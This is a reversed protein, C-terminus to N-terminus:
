LNILAVALLAVALGAQGLRGPAERWLWTALGATFALGAAAFVPFVVAGPLRDLACIVAIGTAYNVLGLPVGGAVERWGCRRSWVGWCLLSVLAATGFLIAFYLPREASLGTSHFWKSTLLCGGNTVFLAILLPVQKRTLGGGGNGKDLSLLPMAGLALVAGVAQISTPREGWILITALVPIVVSLRTIANAVAVGKVDMSHIIVVYTTIFTVGGIVGIQLTLPSPHTRLGACALGAASAVLYNIAMVAFQDQGARQTGRLILSFSTTCVIAILLALM